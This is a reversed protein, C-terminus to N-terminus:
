SLQYSSKFKDIAKESMLLIPAGRHCISVCTGCGICSEAAVESKWGVRMRIAHAPCLPICAGCGVCADQRIYAKRQEM